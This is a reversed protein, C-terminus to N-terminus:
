IEQKPLPQSSLLGYLISANATERRMSVTIRTRMQKKEGGSMGTERLSMICHARNNLGKIDLCWTALEDVCDERAM